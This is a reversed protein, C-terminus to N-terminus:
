SSTKKTPIKLFIIVFIIIVLSLYFPYIMSKDILLGAFLLIPFELLSHLLNSLSITTARNYSNFKKNFFESFFPYRLNDVLSLSTFLIFLLIPNIKIYILLIYLAMIFLYYINLHNINEEVHSKGKIKETFWLALVTFLHGMGWLLGLTMVPLGLDVFFKQYFSWLIFFSFFILEKNLMVKFLIKNNRFLSIADILVGAEQKEVDMKHKPEILRAAFTLAILLSCIDILILVNFQWAFLDKAIYAGVVTGIVKFIRKAAHFKGLKGLTKKSNKLEKETDYVLAEDTGTMCANAAGYVFSAVAFWLFSHAFLFIIFYLISLFLGLMITKKRGWHDALYSSPVEFLLSGIAWVIALYYIQSLELGRHLYFLAVVISIFRINSFAKIWFMRRFNKKLQKNRNKM